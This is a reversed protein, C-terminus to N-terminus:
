LLRGSTCIMLWVFGTLM